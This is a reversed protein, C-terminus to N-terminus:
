GALRISVTLMASRACRWQSSRRDTGMTGSADVYALVIRARLAHARDVRARKTLRVLGRVAGARCVLHARPRRVGAPSGRQSARTFRNQKTERVTAKRSHRSSTPPVEGEVM